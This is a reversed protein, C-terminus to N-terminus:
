KKRKKSKMCFGFERKKRIWRIWTQMKPHAKLSELTNYENELEKITFLKHIQEGCDTCCVILVRGKKCRPILHHKSTCNDPINRGCISCIM